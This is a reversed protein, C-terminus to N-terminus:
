IVHNMKRRFIDVERSEVIRLNLTPNTGYSGLVVKRNAFEVINEAVVFLNKGNVALEELVVVIGVDNGKIISCACAYISIDVDRKVCYLAIGLLYSGSEEVFEMANDYVAEQMERPM